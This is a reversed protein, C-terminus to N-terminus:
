GWQKQVCSHPLSSSIELKPTEMKEPWSWDREQGAQLNELVQLIKEENTMREGIIAFSAPCCLSFFLMGPYVSRPHVM